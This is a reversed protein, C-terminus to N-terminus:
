EIVDIEEFYLCFDNFLKTIKSADKLDIYTNWAEAITKEALEGSFSKHLEKKLTEFAKKQDKFYGFDYCEDYVKWIKM